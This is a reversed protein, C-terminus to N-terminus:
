ADRASRERDSRAGGAMTAPRAHDIPDGILRYMLREGDFGGRGHLWRTNDILVGQGQRFRYRLQHRTVAARLQGWAWRDSPAIEILDDDRYRMTLTGPAPAEFVPARHGATGFGVAGPRSLVALAEPDTAELDRHVTDGNVLITEGGRAAPRACVLYLMQPPRPLSSGETHPAVGDRSFGIGATRRQRGEDPRIDTIGDPEADRHTRSRMLAAAAATLDDRDAIGAVAAIGHENVMAAVASPNWPDVRYAEFDFELM